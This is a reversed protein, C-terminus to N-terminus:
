FGAQQRDFRELTERQFSEADREHPTQRETSWAGCTGCRDPPDDATDEIDREVSECEPCVEHKDSM